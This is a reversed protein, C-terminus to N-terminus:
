QPEGHKELFDAVLPHVANWREGNEYELVISSHMMNLLFNLDEIQENHGPSNIINKLGAYNSITIKKVLSKSLESLAREIDEHEIKNAGRWSARRAANNICEFLHRLSGGTKKILRGLVNEGFLGPDARREVIEKIVSFGPENPTKDKNSVKIMPLTCRTYRAELPAFNGSYSQDIPFTYIVPFPMQALVSFNLIDFITEPRPINDLGEFIIIPQKEDCESTLHMSIEETYALWESARRPMKETVNRRTETSVRLNSKLSSFLKLVSSLVPPTKVEVGSSIEVAASGGTSEVVEVEKHLIDRIAKLPEEPIKANKDEAIRCLGETTLLLIDWYNILFPDTDILTDTMHVGHGAAEFQRKLNILETSKGCGRHGMLLHANSGSAMTCAEFLGRLPSTWPDGTRIAMTDKHFFEDLENEKLPEPKFAKLIGELKKAKVIRNKEAKKIRGM